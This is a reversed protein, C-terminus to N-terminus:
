EIIMTHVTWWSIVGIRIKIGNLCIDSPCCNMIRFEPFLDNLRPVHGMDQAHKWLDVVVSKRNLQDAM